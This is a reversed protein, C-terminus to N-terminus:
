KKTRAKDITLLLAPLLLLDLVLAAVIVIATLKGMDSNFGFSSQMLISFGAALVITTVVIARGVTQFAYRIADEPSKGMERRARIYKSLLHITDDVVIGLTMGLVVTVAMNIEGVLLFWIGFGVAIPTINPLLSIMGYKFSRLAFILILSILILAGLGGQLMSDMNTKTIHSFMLTTSSGHSFMEKPANERLWQEAKATLAMMENSSINKLTVTFRTESKDVNIQNNLDLGYPLSMEYLLLFQAAQQKNEPVKYYKVDDGHMSANVRRMIESFSNVHVVEPQQKFWNEFEDLKKLYAPDSIGDAEGSGLSYELNYIGTLNESIFDTDARFPVSEDFFEVFKNNLENKLSLYSIGIVAILSVILVKKSNNIVFNALGDLLPTKDKKVERVKVKFPLIAVLAPLLITSLFFAATVGIATINGLDHFPAGEAFNLTLFGIVTTISTIFVPMFNVRVSEIIADRKAMGKRMLQLITVLLHISDAIALTMIMTPASSSPGTLEVGMWGAVGMAAMISFMLVFFSTFMSSVSRTAIFVVILIVLFMLPVLSGMDKMSLEAFSGNMMVIGSIYTDFEPYKQNWENVMNQTYHMIQLPAEMSDVPLNVTVNVATVSGESNVLRDKLIPEKLAITKIYQIASDSKNMMDSALAEVYMDDGVSRTHQFNSLADVRTSYPVQWAMQELEEIAALNERTFVKGNKPALVIFANDDKTYKEQLEDFAIVQPNDDDFFIHYDNNFTLFQGGSGAAMTLVIAGILIFWRRKIIWSAFKQIRKNEGM